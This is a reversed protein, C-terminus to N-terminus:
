EIQVKIRKVALLSGELEPILFEVYQTGAPRDLLYRAKLHWLYAGYGLQETFGPAFKRAAQPDDFILAEVVQEKTFTNSLKCALRTLSTSNLSKTPLSIRLELQHDLGYEKRQIQFNPLGEYDPYHGPASL